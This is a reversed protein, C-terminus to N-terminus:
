AELVIRVKSGTAQAYKHLSRLSPMTGGSELRAVTSQTTGMKEAIQHQTLGARIRAQILERVFQFEEEMDAYARAYQPDNEMMETHKQDLSKGM